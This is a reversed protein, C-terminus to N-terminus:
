GGRTAWRKAAFRVLDAELLELLRADGALDAVKRRAISRM